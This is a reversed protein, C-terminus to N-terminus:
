VVSKRDLTFFEPSTIFIHFSETQDSQLLAANQSLEVHAPNFYDTLISKIGLAILSDAHVVLVKQQQLM